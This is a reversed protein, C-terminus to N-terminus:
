KNQLQQIYFFFLFSSDDASHQRGTIQTLLTDACAYTLRMHRYMKWNDLTADWVLPRSFFIQKCQSTNTRRLLPCVFGPYQCLVPLLGLCLCQMQEGVRSAACWQGDKVKKLFHTLTNTWELRLEVWIYCTAALNGKHGSFALHPMVNQLSPPPAMLPLDSSSLTQPGWYNKTGRCLNASSKTM